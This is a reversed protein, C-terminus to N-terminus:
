DLWFATWTNPSQPFETVEIVKGDKISLVFVMELDLVDDGKTATNRSVVAATDGQAIICTPTFRLPEDLTANIKEIVDRWDRLGRVAGSHLPTAEPARWVIDPSLLNSVAEVDGALMSDFLRQAIQHSDM